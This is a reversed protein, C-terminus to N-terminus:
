PAYVKALAETKMGVIEFAAEAIYKVLRSALYLYLFVCTLLTREDFAIGAKEASVAFDRGTL